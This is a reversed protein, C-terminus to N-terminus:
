SPVLLRTKFLREWDQVPVPYMKDVDGALLAAVRIQMQQATAHLYSTPM